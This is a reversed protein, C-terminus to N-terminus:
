NNSFDIKPDVYALFFIGPGSKRAFFTAFSPVNCVKKRKAMSKVCSIM